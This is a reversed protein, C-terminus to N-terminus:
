ASVIHSIEFQIWHKKIWKTKGNEFIYGNCSGKTGHGCGFPYMTWEGTQVTAISDDALRGIFANVGAERNSHNWDNGYKNKGLLKMMEAYNADGEYPQVYRKIYENGAATDHWLIGIPTSGDVTNKYWQSHTMFCKLLKM